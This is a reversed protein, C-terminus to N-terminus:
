EQKPSSAMLKEMREMWEEPTMKSFTPNEAEFRDQESQRNSMLSDLHEALESDQPPPMTGRNQAKM